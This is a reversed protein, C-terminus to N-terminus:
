LFFIKKTEKEGDRERKTGRLSLGAQLWGRGEVRVSAGSKPQGLLGPWLRAFGRLRAGERRVSIDHGRRGLQQYGSGM